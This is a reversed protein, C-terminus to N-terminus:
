ASLPHCLRGMRCVRPHRVVVNGFSRVLRRLQPLRGVVLLRWAPFRQQCANGMLFLEKLATTHQLVETADVLAQADALDNLTLDLKCLSECRQLGNLSCVRNMAINLYELAKLKGLVAVSTLQNAQLYLSKLRKCLSPLISVDTLQLQHLSVEQLSSLM